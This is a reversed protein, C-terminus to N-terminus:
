NVASSCAMRRRRDLVGREGSPEIDAQSEHRELVRAMLHRMSRTVHKQVASVSIDLLEAVESYSMGEWRLLVLITRSREPLEDMAQLTTALQERARLIREPSMDDPPHDHELLECHDQRRRVQDRRYRDRLVNRAARIVYHELNDIGSADRGHMRILVEQVLDDIEDEQVKNRFFARLAPRFSLVEWPAIRNSIQM